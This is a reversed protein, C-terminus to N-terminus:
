SSLLKYLDQNNASAKKMKQEITLKGDDYDTIIDYVYSQFRRFNKRSNGMTFEQSSTDLATNLMWLVNKKVRNKMRYLPFFEDAPNKLGRSMYTSHSIGKGFVEYEISLKATFDEGELPNVYVTLRDEGELYSEFCVEESSEEARPEAPVKILTYGKKAAVQTYLSKEDVGEAMVVANRLNLAYPLLSAVEKGINESGIGGAYQGIALGLETEWLTINPLLPKETARSRILAEKGRVEELWPIVIADFSSSDLALLIWWIMQRSPLGGKLGLVVTFWEIRKEMFRAIEDISNAGSALAALLIYLLDSLKCENLPIAKQRQSHRGRKKERTIKGPSLAGLWAMTVNEQGSLRSLRFDVQRPEQSKGKIMGSIALDKNPERSEFKHKEKLPVLEQERLMPTKNDVKQQPKDSKSEQQPSKEEHPLKNDQPLKENEPVFKEGSDARREYKTETSKSIRQNKDAEKNGESNKDKSIGSESQPSQVKGVAPEQAKQVAYRTNIAIPERQAPENKQRQAEMQRQVIPPPVKIAPFQLGKPLMKAKAEQQPPLKENEPAATAKENGSIPHENKVSNVTKQGLQQLVSKFVGKVTSREKTGKEVLPVRLRHADNKSVQKRESATERSPESARSKQGAQVEKSAKDGGVQRPVVKLPAGGQEKGGKEKVLPRVLGQTNEQKSANKVEKPASDKGLSSGEAQQQKQSKFIKINLLQEGVGKTGQDKNKVEDRHHRSGQQQKQPTPFQKETKIQVGEQSVRPQALEVKPRQLAAIQVVFSSEAPRLAVLNRNQLHTPSGVHRINVHAGQDPINIHPLAITNVEQQVPTFIPAYFRISQLSNIPSQFQPLIFMPGDLM